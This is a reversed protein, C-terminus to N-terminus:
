RKRARSATKGMIPVGSLVGQFETLPKGVTIGKKKEITLERITSEHEGTRKKIVSVAKKVAGHTEFYRTILVTDAIYTLDVPTNMIGVLGQQALVIITVVKRHALYALLEHLQMTLYSEQPMSHVYGNLSDIVVMRLDEEECLRRIEHTFQGPAKGAPDIKHVLIDGSDIHPKFNLGIASARALLSGVNEEFVYLAVKEGREAAAYAYQMAITSKGTGAPGLFLNSTGEIWVM